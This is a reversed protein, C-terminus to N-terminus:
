QPFRQLPAWPPPAEGHRASIQPRLASSPQAQMEQGRGGGSAVRWLSWSVTIDTASWFPDKPAFSCSCRSCMHKPSLQLVPKSDGIDTGTM